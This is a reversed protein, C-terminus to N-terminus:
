GGTCPSVCRRFEVPRRQARRGTAVAWHRTGAGDVGPSGLLRLLNDRLPATGTHIIALKGPLDQENMLARFSGELNTGAQSAAALIGFNLESKTLSLQKYYGADSAGPEAFM